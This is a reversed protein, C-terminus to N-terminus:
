PRSTSSRVHGSSGRRGTSMRSDSGTTGATSAVTISQRSCASSWQGVAFALRSPRRPTGAKAFGTTQTLGAAGAAPTSAWSSTALNARLYGATFSARSRLRSSSIKLYWLVIRPHASSVEAAREVPLEKASGGGAVSARGRWLVHEGADADCKPATLRSASEADPARQM